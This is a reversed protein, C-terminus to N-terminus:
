KKLLKKHEKNKHLVEHIDIKGTMFNKFIEKDLEVFKYVKDTETWCVEPCISYLEYIKSDQNMYSKSLNYKIISGNQIYWNKELSFNNNFNDDNYVINSDKYPYTDYNYEKELKSEYILINQYNYIKELENIRFENNNNYTFVDTTEKKYVSTNGGKIRKQAINTIKRNSWESYNCILNNDIIKIELFEKAPTARNLDNKNIYTGYLDNNDFHIKGYYLYFNIKEIIQEKIESDILLENLKSIFCKSKKNKKM